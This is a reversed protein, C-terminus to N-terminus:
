PHLIFSSPHFGSARSSDNLRRRRAKMRGGEDKMRLYDGVRERHRGADTLSSTPGEERAFLIGITLFLATLEGM